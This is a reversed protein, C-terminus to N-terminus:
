SGVSGIVDGTKVSQGEHVFRKGYHTSFYTYGARTWYHMSWGWIGVLNDPAIFPDRGSLRTIVADEVAVVLTGGPACFDIAWSGNIGATAHLGQCVTSLSGEPHPYCIPPRVHLKRYTEFQFVSLSDFADAKTMAAMLAGDKAVVGTQPLRAKKQCQKALDRRGEGFNRKFSVPKARFRGLNGTQLYRHAGATWAEVDLGKLTPTELRLDRTLLSM